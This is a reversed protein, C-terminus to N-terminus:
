MTKTSFYPSLLVETDVLIVSTKLAKMLEETFEKLFYTKTAPDPFFNTPSALYGEYLKIIDEILLITETGAVYDKTFHNLAKDLNSISDM